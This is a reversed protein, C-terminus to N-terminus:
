STDAAPRVGCVEAGRDRKRRLERRLAEKDVAAKDPSFDLLPASRTGYRWPISDLPPEAGHTTRYIGTGSSGAAASSRRSGSKSRFDWDLGREHTSACSPGAKSRAGRVKRSTDDFM